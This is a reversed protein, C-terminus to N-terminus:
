GEVLLVWVAAARQALTRKCRWSLSLCDQHSLPVAAKESARHATHIHFLPVQPCSHMSSRAVSELATTCPPSSIWILPLEGLDTFPSVSTCLSHGTSSRSFIFEELTQYLPINWKCWSSGLLPFIHIPLHYLFLASLTLFISFLALFPSFIFQVVSSFDRFNGWFQLLFPPGPLKREKLTLSILGCCHSCQLKVWTEYGHLLEWWEGPIIQVESSLVDIGTMGRHYM